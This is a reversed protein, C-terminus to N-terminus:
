IFLFGAVFGHSISSGISSIKGRQILFFCVLISFNIHSISSYAVFSKVDRQLFTVFSRFTLGFRVILIFFSLIFYNILFIIRLIGFTGIKLLLSALL